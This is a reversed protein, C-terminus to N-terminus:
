SAGGLAVRRDLRYLGEDSGNTLPACPVWAKTVGGGEQRLLQGYDGLQTQFALEYRPDDGYQDIWDRWVVLACLTELHRNDKWWGEKLHGLARPYRGHLAVISGWMYSHWKEYDFLPEIWPAHRDSDPDTMPGVAPVITEAYQNGARKAIEACVLQAAVRSTPEGREEALAELQAVLPDPLTMKIRRSMTDGGTENIKSATADETNIVTLPGFRGVFKPGLAPGSQPRADSM